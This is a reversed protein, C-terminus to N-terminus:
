KSISILVVVVVVAVVVVTVTVDVVAVALAHQYIEEVKRKTMQHLSASETHFM